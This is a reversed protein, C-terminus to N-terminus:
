IQAIFLRSSLSIHQFKRLSPLTFKRTGRKRKIHERAENEDNPM